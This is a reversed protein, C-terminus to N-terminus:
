VDIYLVRLKRKVFYLMCNLASAERFEVRTGLPVEASDPACMEPRNQVFMPNQWFYSVMKKKLFPMVNYMDNQLKSEDSLMVNRLGKRKM